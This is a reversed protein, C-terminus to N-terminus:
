LLAARPDTMEVGEEGKGYENESSLRAKSNISFLSSILLFNGCAGVVVDGQERARPGLM